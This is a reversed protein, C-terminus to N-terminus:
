DKNNWHQQKFRERGGAEQLAYREPNKKYFDQHYDEAPYFPKADEIQTVIKIVDPDFTIKVAETHGTKGSCVEEYTPNPVHGGTYGSVVSKIGPYTDFPQVMCWFCGGAFIATDLSM